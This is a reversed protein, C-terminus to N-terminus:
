GTMVLECQDCFNEVQAETFESWNERVMDALAHQYEPESLVVAGEQPVEPQPEPETSANVVSPFVADPFYQRELAQLEPSM